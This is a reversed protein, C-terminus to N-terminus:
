GTPAAEQHRARRGEGPAGPRGLRRPVDRCCARGAQRARGGADATLEEVAELDLFLNGGAAYRSIWVVKVGDMRNCASVISDPMTGEAIELLMDDVANGDHRKEVIEIAEIDGGAEGIATAVRGLSGPVDPLEVRLLFPMLHPLEPDGGGRGDTGNRGPPASHRTQAAPGGERPRAGRGGGRLLARPHAAALGGAPLLVIVEDAQSGQSKHITM